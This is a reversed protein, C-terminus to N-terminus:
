ASRAQHAELARRRPDSSESRGGATATIAPGTPPVALGPPRAETLWRWARATVPRALAVATAGGVATAVQAWALPDLPVCGFLQSVGPTQVIGVLVAASGLGAALVMPHRGGSTVTQALQTGVLGVLAVTSARRPGGTLRAPLWAATAGGATLMARSLIARDLPRGLSRDPGETLLEEARRRGPPRTAIALAPAVDTLLNVLLFQRTNIPATGSLVAGALTFGVEGLNGGLLIALAERVSGWLARGEVIAAIITEIDDNTVIVDAAQRAAPTSRSGMAVGVDALRIAPADNAGDGTMAVTKGVRQFSRVIRVKDAPTVRAFVSVDDIVADLGADDLAVLEAGTMVRHGNLIGLEAAIGEATSPHDGTVMCVAVGAARLGAVAAEAEARVPDSIAVLGLLTLGDIASPDVEADSVASAAIPGEAVALVRLGRRALRDVERHVNALIAASLPETRTSAPVAVRRCRDVLVEPAGKLSVVRRRGTRGVTAHFAQGPEFPLEEDRQWTPLDSREDIRAELAAAVISADTPHALLRGEEPEPTARLAAALVRTHSPGLDSLAADIVLDSVARVALRGLTLTGTKDTCLVDVRGLAEIARHNRVLAGRGALRGAASLQAMTAVLPLGEPVAAVALSVGSALSRRIPLGRLLGAGVVIGGAGISMPVARRTLGALRAEVGGRMPREGGLAARAETAEGTAVVIAVAEGAALSTDGYLMSHRDAVTPAATAAAYKEVPLSEGTLSSEDALVGDAELIRADAPVVDGARLVLVDGVVVAHTPLPVVVGNRRVHVTVEGAQALAEAAQETRWRQLGGLLANAATVGSVIGADVMGGLAASLAAGGVLVPTLPNALEEGVATLFRIAPHPPRREPPIRAEAEVTSLGERRGAVLHVVEAPDLAHWPPVAQVLVPAERRALEIAARTANAMSVLAAGNVAWGYRNSSPRGFVIASASASGLLALAVSQRSVHHGIGTAEVARWAEPGDIVIDAAWPVPDARRRSAPPPAWVGLGVDCAWLADASVPEGGAVLMVVCGDVQLDRIAEALGAGGAVNLDAGLASGLHDSGAVVVMHGARRASAVVQVAWDQPVDRRRSRGERRGASTADLVVTDVRDLRRIAAPDLVVAGRDSLLRTVHAGFVERGLRAAKPLGAYLTKAGRRVDRGVVASTVAAGAAAFAARDAYREIAGSPLPNPRAAGTFIPAGAPGPGGCLGPEAALWRRRRASTESLSAARWVMDAVVGIPGNALGQTTANVLALGVDTAVPGAVDTLLGRLHPESDLLGFLSAIETPLPTSRALTGALALGLGLSDAALASIARWAPELDAPHEPLTAPFRRGAVGFAAEVEEVIAQLERATTGDVAAVLRGLVPNAVAWRVGAMEAARRELEAALRRRDDAHM